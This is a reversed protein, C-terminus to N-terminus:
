LFESRLWFQLPPTVARELDKTTRRTVIERVRDFGRGLEALMMITSSLTSAAAVSARKSEGLERM